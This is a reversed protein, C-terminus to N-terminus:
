NVCKQCSSTGWELAPHTITQKGVRRSSKGACCLCEHDDELCTDLALFVNLCAYDCQLPFARKPTYPLACSKALAQIDTTTATQPDNQLLCKHCSNDAELLDCICTNSLQCADMKSFLPRCVSDCSDSSQLTGPLDLAICEQFAENVEKALTVNRTGLCEVCSSGDSIVTPCLCAESACDGALTTIPECSKKCHNFDSTAQDCSKPLDRVAIRVAGVSVACLFLFRTFSVM